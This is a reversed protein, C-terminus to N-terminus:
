VPPLRKKRLSKKETLNIKNFKNLDKNAAGKTSKTTTPAEASYVTTELPSWTKETGLSEM